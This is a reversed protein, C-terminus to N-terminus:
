VRNAKLAPNSNFVSFVSEDSIISWLLLGVCSVFVVVLLGIPLWIFVKRLTPSIRSRPAEETQMQIEVQQTEIPPQKNRVIQLATPHHARKLLFLYEWRIADPSKKPILPQEQANSTSPDLQSYLSITRPIANNKHTKPALAFELIVPADKAPAFTFIKSDNDEPFLIILMRQLVEEPDAIYDNDNELSKLYTTKYNPNTLVESVIHKFSAKRIESSMMYMHSFISENLGYNFIKEINETLYNEWETQTLSKVETLLQILRATHDTRLDSQDLSELHMIQSSDIHTFADFSQKNKLQAHINAPVSVANRNRPM